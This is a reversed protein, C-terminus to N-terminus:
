DLQDNVAAELHELELLRGDPALAVAIVDIRHDPPDDGFRQLYTRTAAVLRTQKRPTVSETPTGMAQGRRTRVEVFVLTGDRRAILDIEGEPIRYNSEIVDYGHALLHQQALREGFDGLPKRGDPM